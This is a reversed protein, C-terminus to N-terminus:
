VVALLTILSLLSHLIPLIFTKKSKNGTMEQKKNAKFKIVYEDCRTYGNAGGDRENNIAFYTM